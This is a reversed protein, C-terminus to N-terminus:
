QVNPFGYDTKLFQFLEQSVDRKSLGLYNKKETSMIDGWFYTILILNKYEITLYSNKWNANELLRLMFSNDGMRWGEGKM